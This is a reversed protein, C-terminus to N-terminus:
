RESNRVPKRQIIGPAKIEINRFESSKIEGAGDLPEGIPNVVRGLLADGVPVQVIAETRKVTSGEKINTDEGLVAIGVNNSELNLVMGKTGDTFEVLEGALVNKLGFVRAVGDGVTLVTGVENVDLKTEFNSIREKIISTIEEPRMTTSM